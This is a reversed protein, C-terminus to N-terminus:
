DVQDFGLVSDRQCDLRTHLLRYASKHCLKAKQFHANFKERELM